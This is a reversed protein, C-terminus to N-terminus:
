PAETRAVDFHELTEGIHAGPPPATDPYHRALHERLQDAEPDTVRSATLAVRRCHRCTVRFRLPTPSPMM